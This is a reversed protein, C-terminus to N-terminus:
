GPNVYPTCPVVGYTNRKRLAIRWSNLRSFVHVLIYFACELATPTASKIAWPQWVVTCAVRPEHITQPSCRWLHQAKKSYDTVLPKMTLMGKYFFSLVSPTSDGQSRKGPTPENRALGPSDFTCSTGLQTTLVNMTISVDM